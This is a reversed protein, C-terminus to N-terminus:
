PSTGGSWAEEGDLEELGALVFDVISIELVNALVAPERPLALQHGGAALQAELEVEDAAVLSWPHSGGGSCGACTKPTSRAGSACGSRWCLSM